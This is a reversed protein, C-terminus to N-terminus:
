LITPKPWLLSYCTGPILLKETVEYHLPNLGCCVTVPEPYSYSRHSKMIYHGKVVVFQPPRQNTFDMETHSDTWYLM